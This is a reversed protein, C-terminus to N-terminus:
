SPTYTQKSSVRSKPGGPLSLPRTKFILLPPIQPGKGQYEARPTLKGTPLKSEHTLVRGSNAFQRIGAVAM